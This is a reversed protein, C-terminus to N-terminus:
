SEASLNSCHLVSYILSISAKGVVSFPTQHSAGINKIRAIYLRLMVRGCLNYPTRPTRADRESTVVLSRSAGVVFTNGRLM